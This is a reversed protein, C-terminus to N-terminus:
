CFAIRPQIRYYSGSIAFSVSGHLIPVKDMVQQITISIIESCEISASQIRKVSFNKKGLYHSM